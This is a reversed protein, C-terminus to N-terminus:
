WRHAGSLQEEHGTLHREIRRGPVHHVTPDGFLRPAHEVVDACQESGASTREGAKKKQKEKDRKGRSRARMLSRPASVTASNM